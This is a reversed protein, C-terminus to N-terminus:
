LRFSMRNIMNDYHVGLVLQLFSAAVMGVGLMWADKPEVIAPAGEVVYLIQQM